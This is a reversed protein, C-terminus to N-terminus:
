IVNFSADWYKMALGAYLNLERSDRVVQSDAVVHFLVAATWTAATHMRFLTPDIGESEEYKIYLLELHNMQGLVQTPNVPIKPTGSDAWNQRPQNCNPLLPQAAPCSPPVGLDFGVWGPCIFSHFPLGQPIPISGVSIRITHFMDWVGRGAATVLIFVLLLFCTFGIGVYKILNEPDCVDEHHWQQSQELVVTQLCPLPLPSIKISLTCIPVHPRTCVPHEMLERVKTQNVKIKATGHNQQPLNRNPLFLQAVPCSTPSCGLYLDVLGLDALQQFVRYLVLCPCKNVQAGFHMCECKTELADTKILTCGTPDWAGNTGFDENWRM